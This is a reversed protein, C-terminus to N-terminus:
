LSFLSNVDVETEFVDTFILFHRVIGPQGGFRHLRGIRQAMALPNRPVDYHICLKAGGFEYGQCVATTAILVGGHDLVSNVLQDREQLPTEVTLMAVRLAPHSARVQDALYEATDRFETFLVVPASAESQTSLVQLAAALKSDLPIEEVLSLLRRVENPTIQADRTTAIDASSPIEEDVEDENLLSPGAVGEQRLLERRLFQEIAFLSSSARTYTLRHTPSDGQPTLLSGLAGFFEREENSVPVTLVSVEYRDAFLPKGSWDILESARRAIIADPRLDSAMAGDFTASLAVLLGVRPSNWLSQLVQGRDTGPTARHAEDFIVLDWEVDAVSSLREPRKIFDLSVVATQVAEWPNEDAETQAELLRLGAADVPLAHQDYRQLVEAWQHVLAPPSLVLTRIDRGRAGALASVLATASTTKGLGVEDALLLRGGDSHSVAAEVFEVQHPLLGQNRLTDRLTTM